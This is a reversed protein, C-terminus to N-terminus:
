QPLLREFFRVAVIMAVLATTARIVSAAAAVNLQTILQSFPSKLDM